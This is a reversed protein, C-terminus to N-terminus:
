SGDKDGQLKKELDKHTVYRESFVALQVKLDTVAHSLEKTVKLNDELLREQTQQKTVSIGTSIVASIILATAIEGVKDMM